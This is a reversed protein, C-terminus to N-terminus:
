FQREYDKANFVANERKHWYSTGGKDIRRELMDKRFLKLILAIPTFVLYFILALLLRTNVWSLIFALRMWIIYVPKLIVPSVVASIFFGLSLFLFPLNAHKHKLFILLVIVLFAIGMTIGFKKLNSSSLNLKEM